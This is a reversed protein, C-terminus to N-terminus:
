ASIKRDYLHCFGGPELELDLTGHNLILGRTQGRFIGDPFPWVSSVEVEPEVGTKRGDIECSRPIHHWLM